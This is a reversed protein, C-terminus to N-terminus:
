KNLKDPYYRQHYGALQSHRHQAQYPYPVKFITIKKILVNSITGRTVLDDEMLKQYDEMLTLEDEPLTLDDEILTL